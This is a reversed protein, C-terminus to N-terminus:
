KGICFRGFVQDLVDEADVRGTIRGLAHAARRLDEAALEPSLVSQALHDQLSRACDELAARHRAQTIVPGDDPSIRAGALQAIREVLASLGEGTGASMRLISTSRTDQADLLGSPAIDVKNLVTEVLGADALEDPVDWVPATADVVWVVLDAERGRELTRRIGEAEVAGAAARLGATDSVIVPLGELDLRVEIVDRTTGPEPSVIAADRRALANLLSSKGANPPGAIVVRFGERLIEGRRGDKLHVDIRQALDRAIARSQGIADAAVDAEDSFDIAAEALAMAGILQERWNDYLQSLVGGAQAVAQRRQAETEADILDAIGEAEVLDIKGNEFARRAFEGPEALRCGLSQLAALVRAVVARGGHLLIEVVDEGTFSSPGAYLLVIARDIDQGTDPDCGPDRGPDRITRLTATRAEPVPGAMRELCTRALPGSVRVVAVGARGPASSLACITDSTPT